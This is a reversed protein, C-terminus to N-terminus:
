GRTNIQCKEKKERSCRFRTEEYRPLKSQCFYSLQSNSRETSRRTLFRQRVIIFQSPFLTNTLKHSWVSLTYPLLTIDRVKKKLKENLVGMRGDFLKLIQDITDVKEPNYTRYYATLRAKNLAREAEKDREDREKKLAVEHADLEAQLEKDIKMQRAKLASAVARDDASRLLDIVSAPTAEMLSRASSLWESAEMGDDSSTTAQGESAGVFSESSAADEQFDVIKELEKKLEDGRSMLLVDSKKELVAIALFYKWPDGKTLLTDWLQLLVNHDLCSGGYEGAFNTVFWSLPVLGNEEMEHKKKNSEPNSEEAKENKAKEEQDKANDDVLQEDGHQDMINGRRPWYWGPCHRDLHMVLLPLHYCALLYFESHLAKAALFQESNGLRLLPMVSPEIQSLVVSAAAAPIGAQLIALAVPPILPDIGDLTPSTSSKKRSHFYSLSIVQRKKAQYDEDEKNMGCGQEILTDFNGSDGEFKVAAEGKKEWERYSDALSGDEVDGLIKGCIVKSWLYARDEKGVGIDGSLHSHGQERSFLSRIDDTTSANSRIADALSSFTITKSSEVETAGGDKKGSPSGDVTDGGDVIAPSVQQMDNGADALQLDEMGEEADDEWQDFALEEEIGASFNPKSEIVPAPDDINSTIDPTAITTNEEPPKEAVVAPVVKPADGENKKTSILNEDDDKKTEVVQVASKPSTTADVDALMADFDFDDDDFGGGKSADENNKSDGADGSINSNIDSFSSDDKNSAKKGTPHDDDLWDLMDRTDEDHVHFDDFSSTNNQATHKPATTNPLEDIALLTDKETSSLEGVLPTSPKASTVPPTGFLADFEDVETSRPTNIVSGGRGNDTPDAGPTVGGGRQPPSSLSVDSLIDFDSSGTSTPQNAPETSAGPTTTGFSFLDEFDDDDDM